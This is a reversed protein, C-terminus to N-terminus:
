SVSRYNIKNYKLLLPRFHEIPINLFLWNTDLSPRFPRDKIHSDFKSIFKQSFRQNINLALQLVFHLRIGIPDFKCLFADISITKDRSIISNIFKGLRLLISVWPTLIRVVSALFAEENFTLGFLMILNFNWKWVESIDLKEGLSLYLAHYILSFQVPCRAPSSRSPM